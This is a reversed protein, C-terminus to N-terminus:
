DYNDTRIPRVKQLLLAMIGPVQEGDSPAHSWCRHRCHGLLRCLCHHHNHLVLLRLDRQHYPHHHLRGLHLNTPPLESGSVLNM